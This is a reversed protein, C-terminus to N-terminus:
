ITSQPPEWLLGEARMDMVVKDFMDRHEKSLKSLGDDTGEVEEGKLRAIVILKATMQFRTESDDEEISIKRAGDYYTYANKLLTDRNKIAQEYFTPPAGMAARHLEIDGRLMNIKGRSAKGPKINATALSSLATSLASWRLSPVDADGSSSLTNNFELLAEAHDCLAPGNLALFPCSAWASTLTEAYTSSSIVSSRYAFDALAALLSFRAHRYYLQQGSETAYVSAKELLANSHAEIKQVAAPDSDLISLVNTIAGAHAICTDLLTSTTIPEVVSAWQSESELGSPPQLVDAGEGSPAPPAQSEKFRTEQIALCKEFVEVAEQNLTIAKQKNTASDEALTTEAICTM